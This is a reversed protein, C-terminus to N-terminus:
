ILQTPAELCIELIESNELNSYVTVEKESLICM